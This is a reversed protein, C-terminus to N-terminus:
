QKWARRVKNVLRNAFISKGQKPPDWRKWAIRLSRGMIIFSFSQQQCWSHLWSNGVPDAWEGECGEREGYLDTFFVGLSGHGQGDGWLCITVVSLKWVVGPLIISAQMSSCCPIAIQPGTLGQCDKWSTGSGLGQCVVLRGLHCTLDASRLRWGGCCPIERSNGSAM